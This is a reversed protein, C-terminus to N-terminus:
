SGLERSRATAAEVAALFAARLGHDELERLGAATTGGPSTVAERLATPHEGTEALLAASGLATGVVLETALPRPLGALVAADILAEVMLFFYAPGSGSVGTVADLQYEPVRVVTGVATLLAEAAALHEDTAHTGASIATVGKGVLAPTNPMARVVPVGVPLAGEMAAVTVGAAISIILHKPTVALGALLSPVINPKVAVVLVDAETAGSADVPRIGHIEVLHASRATDPELVLVDQPPTGGKVLGALLAEGM